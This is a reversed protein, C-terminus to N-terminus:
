IGLSFPPWSICQPGTIFVCSQDELVFWSPLLFSQPDMERGLIAESRQEKRELHLMYKKLITKRLSTVCCHMYVHMKKKIKFIQFILFNPNKFHLGFYEVKNGGRKSCLLFTLVLSSFIFWEYVHLATLRMVRAHSSCLIVLSYTYFSSLPM